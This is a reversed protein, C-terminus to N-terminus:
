SRTRDMGDLARPAQAREVCADAFNRHVDHLTVWRGSADLSLGVLLRQARWRLVGVAAAGVVVVVSVVVTLRAAPFIPIIGPAVVSAVLVAIVSGIGWFMRRVAAAYWGLVETSYPLRVTLDRRPRCAAVIVLLLWGPPGFFLALWLGGLSGTM